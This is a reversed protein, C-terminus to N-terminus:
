QMPCLILLEVTVKKGHIYVFSYWPVSLVDNGHDQSDICTVSALAMIYYYVNIFLIFMINVMSTDSEVM